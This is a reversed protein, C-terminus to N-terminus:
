RSRETASIDRGRMWRESICTRSWAPCFGQQGFALAEFWNAGGHHERGVLDREAAGDLCGGSAQDHGQQDAGLGDDAGGGLPVTQVQRGGPDHGGVIFDGGRRAGHRQHTVALGLRQHLAVQM